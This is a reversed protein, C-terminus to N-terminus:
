PLGDLLTIIRCLHRAAEMQHTQAADLRVADDFLGVLADPHSFSGVIKRLEDRTRKIRERRDQDKDM